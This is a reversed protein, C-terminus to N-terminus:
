RDSSMPEPVGVVHTARGTVALFAAAPAVEAALSGKGM